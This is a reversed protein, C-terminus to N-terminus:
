RKGGNSGTEALAARADEIAQVRDEAGFGMGGSSPGVLRWLLDRLAACKARAEDREAEAKELAEVTARVRIAANRSMVGDVEALRVEDLTYPKADSM